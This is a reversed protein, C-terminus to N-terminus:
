QLAGTDDIAGPMLEQVIIESFRKADRADAAIGSLMGNNLERLAAIQRLIVPDSTGM